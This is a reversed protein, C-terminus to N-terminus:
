LHESSLLKELDEKSLETIDMIQELSMGALHMRKAIQQKSQQVGLQKGIEKGRAEGLEQNYEAERMKHVEEDYCVTIMDEIVGKEKLLIDKLIGHEICEEVAKKAAIAPKNETKLYKRITDVFIAYEKLPKCREMLNKNYGYNINLMVAKFDLFDFDNLTSSSENFASRLSIIQREPQKKEGNYFVIYVPQPLSVQKSGYIDLQNEYIFQRYLESLYVLGRVPMNPNVTSQHEYINLIDDIIFSKDNEIGLFVARKITNVSVMSEDQYKTQAIANYLELIAKKDSFIKDFLVDKYTRNYYVQRTSEKTM